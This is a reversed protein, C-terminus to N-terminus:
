DFLIALTVFAPLELSQWRHVDATGEQRGVRTARGQSNVVLPKSRTRTLEARAASLEEGTFSVHCGNAGAAVLLCQWARQQAQVDSGVGRM